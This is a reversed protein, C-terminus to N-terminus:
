AGDKEYLAIQSRSLSPVGHGEHAERYWRTTEKVANEFDWRPQWKLRHTAKDISLHLLGAEHPAKEDQRVVIEGGGWHHIIREALDQVSCISESRPGFNWAGCFRGPEEFLRRGLLLYGSLPDLVHQWPRTAGPNRLEIPEEDQLARICDPVIRDESWDGGGMVNGARVSACCPTGSTGFFSDMYSSFVLEAAAKSASYPDHGGLEDDERYGWIWEHNKYCKDSTVYVLSKVSECHRMAELLNVSGGVNTDFTEKPNRYSRRVLAQAALHFVIEPEFACLVRELHGYDRIDGEHHDIMTDLGLLAFHDQPREPPLAYGCVSAGLETLWLTLWSGKFGTHGTVFVRKGRYFQSIKRETM